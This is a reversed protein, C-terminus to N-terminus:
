ENSCRPEPRLRTNKDELHCGGVGLGEKSKGSDKPRGGCRGKVTRARTWRGPDDKISATRAEQGLRQDLSSSSM